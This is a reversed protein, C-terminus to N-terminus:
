ALSLFRLVGAMHEDFDSLAHDGGELLQGQSGAYRASMERWDLLEDGKAILTYFREPRSLTGADLERLEQVFEPQFFFTEQPSHWASQVGIHRALDRAPQVAPNLLVAPCGTRAAIWTAYFGGLSSGVVAMSGQPWGAIGAMLMAMAQRPSPPLQPCWWHVAPHCAQVAAAMKVAKASLPSSRFGHLYLLHTVTM